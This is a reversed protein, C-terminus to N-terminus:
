KVIPFSQEKWKTLSGKLVYPSIMLMDSIKVAAQFEQLENIGYVILKKNQPIELRRKELEEFPINTSKEIHGEAFSQKDRVDLFLTKQSSLENKAEETSIYSVKAQDAISKPDGYNISPGSANEWASYGNALISVNMFGNQNFFYLADDISQNNEDSPIIVISSEKKIKAPIFFSGVQMNYSDLIHKYAFKETDRLDIIAFNKEKAIKNLLERANITNYAKKSSENQKEQRIEQKDEKTNRVITIIGVLFILVIGIIIALYEKGEKM